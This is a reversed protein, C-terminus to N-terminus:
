VNHKFDISIGKGILVINLIESDKDELYKQYRSEIIFSEICGYNCTYQDFWVRVVNKHYPNPASNYQWPVM